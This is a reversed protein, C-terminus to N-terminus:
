CDSEGDTKDSTELMTQYLKLAERVVQSVTKGTLSAHEKVWEKIEPPVKASLPVTDGDTDEAKFLKLNALQKETYPKTRNYKRKPRKEQPM